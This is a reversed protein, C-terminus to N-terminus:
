KVWEDYAWSILVAHSEEPYELLYREYYSKVEHDLGHTRAAQLVRDIYREDAETLQSSRVLQPANM